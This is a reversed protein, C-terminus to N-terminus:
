QYTITSSLCISPPSSFPLCVSIQSFMCIRSISSSSSLCFLFFLSRILSLSVFCLRLCAHLFLCLCFSLFASVYLYLSLCVFLSLCLCVSFCMCLHVFVSVALSPCLCVNLSGLSLTHAWANSKPRM